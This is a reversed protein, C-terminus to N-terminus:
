KKKLSSKFRYLLILFSESLLILTLIITLSCNIFVSTYFVIFYAIIVKKRAEHFQKFITLLFLFPAFFSIYFAFTPQMTLFRFALLNFLLLFSYSLACTFITKCHYSTFQMKLPSFLAIFLIAFYAGNFLSCILIASSFCFITSFIASFSYQVISIELQTKKSIYEYFTQM